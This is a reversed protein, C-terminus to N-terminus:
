MQYGQLHTRFLPFRPLPQCLISDANKEYTYFFSFKTTDNDTLFCDKIPSTEKFFYDYIRRKLAEGHPHV